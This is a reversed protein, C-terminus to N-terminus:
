FLAVDAKGTMEDIFRAVHGAVLAPSHEVVWHNGPIELTALSECWPAPATRQMESDVHLDDTPALVQVPVTTRRPRPRALRPLFNARYLALGAEADSRSRDRVVADKPLGHRASHRVFRDLVGLRIVAEPVAPLQFLAVYYSDLLQRAIARPRERLGRLWVGVMDLDPGSISSYSLLRSSWAPDTVLGWTQISGWDHALLHVPEDGAVHDIVAGLDAALRDIRYSRRGSPTSSSGAGRVDYTVVRFRETLEAVVGDWVHHDDPYGHVAVITPGPGPHDQVALTVGDPTTVTLNRAVTM